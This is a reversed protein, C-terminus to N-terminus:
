AVNNQLLPSNNQANDLIKQVYPIMKAANVVDHRGQIQEIYYKNTLPDIRFEITYRKPNNDTSKQGNTDLFSYIACNDHTIQDAYTWVCHQQLQTELILRKRTTIQEFENPLIERLQKFKSDKPINVPKTYKIYYENSLRDHKQQIGKLSKMSLDYKKKAINCMYLYDEYVHQNENQYEQMTDQVFTEYEDPLYQIDLEQIQQKCQDEIQKRALSFQVRNQLVNAIFQDRRNYVSGWLGKVLNLDKQQSLIQRSKENAMKPWAKIIMYSLYINQKNWKIHIDNADKYEKKLLEAKNHYKMIDNFSIPLTNYVDQYDQLLDQYLKNKKFRDKTIVQLVTRLDSSSTYLQCFKRFPLPILKNRFTYYLNYEGNDYFAVIEETRGQSHFPIYRLQTDDSQDNSCSNIKLNKYVQYKINISQQTKINIKLYSNIHDICFPAQLIDYCQMHKQKLEDIEDQTLTPLCRYTADYSGIKYYMDLPTSRECQLIPLDQAINQLTTEINLLSNEKQYKQLLTTNLSLDKINRSINPFDSLIFIHGWTQEKEYIQYLLPLMATSQLFSFISYVDVNKQSIQILYYCLSNEYNNKFDDLLLNNKFLTLLNFDNNTQQLILKIQSFSFDQELSLQYLNILKYQTWMGIDKAQLFRIFQWLRHKKQPEQIFVDNSPFCYLAEADSYSNLKPIYTECVNILTQPDATRNTVFYSYCLNLQSMFYDERSLFQILMEELQNNKANQIIKLQGKRM